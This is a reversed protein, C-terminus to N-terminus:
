DQSGARLPGLYSLLSTSPFLASLALLLPEAALLGQPEILLLCCHCSRMEFIIFLNTGEVEWGSRRGLCSPSSVLSLLPAAPGRCSPSALGGVTWLVRRNLSGDEALPFHTQTM